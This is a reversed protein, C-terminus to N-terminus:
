PSTRGWPAPVCRTVATDIMGTSVATPSVLRWPHVTIGGGGLQAATATDYQANVCATLIAFQQTDGISAHEAVDTCHYTNSLTRLTDAVMGRPVIFARRNLLAPPFASNLYRTYLVRMSAPISVCVPVGGEMHPSIVVIPSAPPPAGPAPSYVSLFYALVDAPCTGRFHADVCACHLFRVSTAGSAVYAYLPVNPTAAFPAAPQGCWCVVDADVALRAFRGIPECVAHCLSMDALRISLPHLTPQGHIASMHRPTLLYTNCVPCAHHLSGVLHLCRAPDM